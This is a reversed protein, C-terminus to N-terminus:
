PAPSPAPTTQDTPSQAAPLGRGKIVVGEVISTLHQAAALAHNGMAVCQAAEPDGAATARALARKLDEMRDTMTSLGVEVAPLGSGKAYLDLALAQQHEADSLNTLATRITVCADDQATAVAGGMAIMAAVTIIAMLTATATMTVTATSGSRIGGIGFRRAGASVGGGSVSRRGSTQPM